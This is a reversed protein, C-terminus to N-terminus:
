FVLVDSVGPNSVRLSLPRIAKRYDSLTALTPVGFDMRAQRMTLAREAFSSSGTPSATLRHCDM